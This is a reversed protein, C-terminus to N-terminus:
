ADDSGPERQPHGIKAAHRAAAASRINKLWKRPDRPTALLAQIEAISQAASPSGKNLWDMHLDRATKM